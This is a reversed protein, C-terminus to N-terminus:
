CFAALDSPRGPTVFCQAAEQDGEILVYRIEPAHTYVVLSTIEKRPPDQEPLLSGEDEM